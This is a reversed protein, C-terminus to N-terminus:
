PKRGRPPNTPPNPKIIKHDSKPKAPPTRINEHRTPQKTPQQKPAQKKDDGAM